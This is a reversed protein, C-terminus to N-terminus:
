LLCDSLIAPQKVSLPSFPSTKHGYIKWRLTGMMADGVIALQRAFCNLKIKFFLLVIVIFRSNIPYWFVKWWIALLWSVLKAFSLRRLSFTLRRLSSLNLSCGAFHLRPLAFLFSLKTDIDSNVICSQLRKAPAESAFSKPLKHTTSKEYRRNFTPRAVIKTSRAKMIAEYFSIEHFSLM